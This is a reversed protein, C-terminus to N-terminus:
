VHASTPWAGFFGEPSSVCKRVIYGEFGELGGEYGYGSEKVGFFPSEPLGPAVTNVAVMGAEIGEALRRAREVSGTFVYSHLGVALSNAARLAEDETSFKALPVIPAFPEERMM